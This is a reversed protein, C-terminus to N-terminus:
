CDAIRFIKIKEYATLNLPKFKNERNKVPRSKPFSVAAKKAIEKGKKPITGLTVAAHNKGDDQKKKEATTLETILKALQNPDRSKKSEMSWFYEKVM